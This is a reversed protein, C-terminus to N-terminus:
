RDPPRLHFRWDGADDDEVRGEAVALLGGAEREAVLLLEAEGSREVLEADVDDLGAERDGGLVVELGDAVDGALHLRGDIAASARQRGSSMSRAPAASSPAARGRICTKM